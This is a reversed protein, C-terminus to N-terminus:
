AKLGLGLSDRCYRISKELEDRQRQKDGGDYQDM